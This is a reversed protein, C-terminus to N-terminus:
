LYPFVPLPCPHGAKKQHRSSTGQGRGKLFFVTLTKKCRPSNLLMYGLLHYQTRPSTETTKERNILLVHTAMNYKLLPAANVTLSFNRFIENERYFQVTPFGINLFLELNWIYYIYM